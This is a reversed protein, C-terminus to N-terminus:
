EMHSTNFGLLELHESRCIRVTRLRRRGPIAWESQEDAPQRACGLYSDAIGIRGGSSMGTEAAAQKFMTNLCQQNCCFM